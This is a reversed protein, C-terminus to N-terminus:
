ADRCPCLLDFWNDNGQNGSHFSSYSFSLLLLSSLSARKNTLIRLENFNELDEADMNYGDKEIDVYIPKAGTHKVSNTVVVCTFAQVLVEDGEGVGFASVAEHLATRGSDFCYIRDVGLIGALKKEVLGVYRGNKCSGWNWPLLLFKLARFADKYNSNPSFFTFM